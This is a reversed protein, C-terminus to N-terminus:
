MWEFVAVPLALFVMSLVVLLVILKWLGNGKRKQARELVKQLAADIAGTRMLMAFAGGVILVFAIINAASVIGALPATFATLISQPQPDVPKYTGPAVVTVIRDGLDKEIRDYAGAPIIWTSIIVLVLIVAVIILADPTKKLKM